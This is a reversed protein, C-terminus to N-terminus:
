PPYTWSVSINYNIFRGSNRGYPTFWIGGIMSLSDNWNYEIAPALQFSYSSGSGVSAAAGSSPDVGPDGVFKTRGSVSYIVDTALVWRQTLSWELGLDATFNNGPRVKGDTGYGGGYTNLSRVHVTTPITYGLYLRTNFPHRTWWFLLKGIRLSFTTMWSGSGTSDTGAKEVSLHQYKGIPFSEGVTFKIAPVWIGQSLLNFGLILPLDTTGAYTHGNENRVNYTVTPSLAIDMWDTIGTQTVPQLQFQWLPHPTHRAEHKSNFFGYNDIAYFYPQLSITKPPVMSPSGAVVPGSYWPNFLTLAHRFDAEATNLEQQVEQASKVPAPSINEDAFLSTILFFLSFFRLM